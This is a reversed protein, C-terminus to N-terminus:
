RENNYHEILNNCIYFREPIVITKDPDIRDYSPIRVIIDEGGMLFNAVEGSMNLVWETKQTEFCFATSDQIIVRDGIIFDNDKLNITLQKKRRISM